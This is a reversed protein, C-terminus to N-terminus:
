SAIGIIRERWYLRISDNMQLIKLISPLCFFDPKFLDPVCVAKFQNDKFGGWVLLFAFM